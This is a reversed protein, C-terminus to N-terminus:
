YTGLCIEAKFSCSNNQKFMYRSAKRISGKIQNMDIQLNLNAVLYVIGYFYM